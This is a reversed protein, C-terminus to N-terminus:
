GRGRWIPKDPDFRRVAEEIQEAKLLKRPTNIGAQMLARLELHDRDERYLADKTSIPRVREYTPRLRIPSGFQNRGSQPAQRGIAAYRLRLARTM